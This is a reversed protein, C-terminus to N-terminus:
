ETFFLRFIHVFFTSFLPGMPHNNTHYGFRKQLSFDVSLVSDCVGRETSPGVSVVGQGKCSAFPEPLVVKRYLTSGKGSSGDGCEWELGAGFARLSM